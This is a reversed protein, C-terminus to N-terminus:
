HKNTRKTALRNKPIKITFTTGEGQKSTVSFTGGHNEIIKYSISLGLGTGKGVDKTTFFPEFIKGIDEESIGIGDDTITIMVSDDILKTEIRINGPGKVAHIANQLLNMFVQNLQGPMCEIKPIKGYNKHVTISDGIEKKLISLTSNLGDHIDALKREAEDLRSFNRLDEVIQKVRTSGDLTEEILTDVDEKIFALEKEDSIKGPDKLKTIYHQLERMNGYIFGIPNNLEHAVGAVLQGLGSMKESHVLQSQTEKLESYLSELTANQNELMSIYKEQTETETIQRTLERTKEIFNNNEVALAAQNALTVLTNLDETDYDRNNKLIGTALFAFVTDNRLIPVLVRCGIDSLESFDYTLFDKTITKTSLLLNKQEISLNITKPLNNANGATFVSRSTNDDISFVSCFDPRMTRFIMQSLQEFLKKNERIFILQESFQYLAKRYGYRKKKLSLIYEMVASTIILGLSVTITQAGLVYLTSKGKFVAYLLFLIILIVSLFIGIQRHSWHYRKLFLTTSGGIMGVLALLLLFARWFETRMLQHSITQKLRIGTKYVGDLESVFLRDGERINTRVVEEGSPFLIRARFRGEAPVGFHAVTEGISLYGSGGSIERYGILSGPENEESIKYLWVKTGIGDRNSFVGEAKIRISSYKQGHNEYLISATDKNSIFLDLDGDQNFDAVAAGTSYHTNIEPDILTTEFTGNGTNICLANAGINTFVVDQWGNNDIDAILGSYAPRPNVIGSSITIDTFAFKDSSSDFDNRYLSNKGNRDTVLLDVDGDNDVDGFCVGNSNLSDQLHSIPLFIQEFSMGNINRYLEDPALWNCVYLDPYGDMDVDAFGAGQSVGDKTLNYTSTLESFRGNKNQIYLSNHGHENTIFVDLRGDLNVDGWASANGSITKEIGSLATIDQFHLRESQKFLRTTIGWGTIMVDQIGDNNFDVVSAGLELNKIGRPYLNGGLGTPITEDLFQGSKKSYIFLRNIDRFRTLYLDAYGDQNIDRFGVGYVDDIEPLRQEAASSEVFMSNFWDNHKQGYASSLLISVGAFIFLGSAVKKLVGLFASM